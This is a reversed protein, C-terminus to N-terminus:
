LPLVLSKCGLPQDNSDMIMEGQCFVDGRGYSTAEQAVLKSTIYYVDNEPEPLGEVRVAETRMVPIGGRHILNKSFVVHAVVDSVPNFTEISGDELIVNISHATLNYFVPKSMTIINNTM